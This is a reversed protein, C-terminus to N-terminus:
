FKVERVTKLSRNSMNKPEAEYLICGSYALVGIVGRKGFSVRLIASYIGVALSQYYDGDCAYM